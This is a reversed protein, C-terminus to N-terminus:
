RRATQEPQDPPLEPAPTPRGNRRQYDEVRSILGLFAAGGMIQQPSSPPMLNMYELERTAYRPTPGLLRLWVGGKIELAEVIAVALTGRRVGANAKADFDQPVWGRQKAAEVRAAYNDAPDEGEFFLLLAHLAEDNTVVPRDHLNHWFAMRARADNGGHAETLSDEVQVSQCGVLLMLTMATLLPAATWQLSCPSRTAAM